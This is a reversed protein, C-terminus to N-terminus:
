GFKEADLAAVCDFVHLSFLRQCWALTFLLFLRVYDVVMRVLVFVVAGDVIGLIQRESPVSLNVIRSM